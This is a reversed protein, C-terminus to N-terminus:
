LANGLGKRALPQTNPERLSAIGLRNGRGRRFDGSPDCGVFHNTLEARDSSEPTGSTSERALRDSRSPGMTRCINSLRFHRTPNAPGTRPCVAQRPSPVPYRSLQKAIKSPFSSARFLCGKLPRTALGSQQQIAAETESFSSSDRVATQGDGTSVPESSTSVQWFSEISLRSSGQFAEDKKNGGRYEGLRRCISRCGREHNRSVLCEPMGRQEDIAFM